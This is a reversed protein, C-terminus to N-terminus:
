EVRIEKVSSKPNTDVMPHRVNTQEIPEKALPRANGFERIRRRGDPGVTIQCGYYYPIAALLVQVGELKTVTRFLRVFKDEVELFERDM